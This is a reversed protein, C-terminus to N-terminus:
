HDRNKKLVGLLHRYSFVVSVNRENVVGNKLLLHHRPDYSYNENFVIIYNENESIQRPLLYYKLATGSFSDSAILKVTENSPIRKKFEQAFDYITELDIVFHKELSRPFRMVNKDAHRSSTVGKDLQWMKYWGYDMRFAFLGGAVVTALILSKIVLWTQWTVEQPLLVDQVGPIRDSQKGRYCTILYIVFIVALIIYILTMFPARGILPNDIQNITALRIPSVYWFREWLSSITMAM